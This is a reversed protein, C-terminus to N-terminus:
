HNRLGTLGLNLEEPSSFYSLDLEDELEPNLRSSIMTEDLFVPIQKGLYKRHYKTYAIEVLTGPSLGFGIMADTRLSLCTNLTSWGGDIEEIRDCFQFYPELINCGGQPVVGVVEKGDFKKYSKAFDLPVGEDPILYISSLNAALVKGFQDRLLTYAGENVKSFRFIKTKDTPGIILASLNKSPKM